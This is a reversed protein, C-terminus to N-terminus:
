GALYIRAKGEEGPCFVRLHEVRLSLTFVFGLEYAGSIKGQQLIPLDAQALESSSSTILITGYAGRRHIHSRIRYRVLEYSCLVASDIRGGSIVITVSGGCGMHEGECVFCVMSLGYAGSEHRYDLSVMFCQSVVDSRLLDLAGGFGHPGREGGRDYLSGQGWCGVCKLKYVIRSLAEGCGGGGVGGARGVM